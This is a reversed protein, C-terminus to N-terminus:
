DRRRNRSVADKAWVAATADRKPPTEIEAEESVAEETKVEAIETTPTAEESLALQANDIEIISLDTLLALSIAATTTLFM